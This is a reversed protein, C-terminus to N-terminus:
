VSSLLRPAQCLKWEISIPIFIDLAPDSIGFLQGGIPNKVTLASRQAANPIVRRVGAPGRPMTDNAGAASIGTRSRCPQKQAQRM